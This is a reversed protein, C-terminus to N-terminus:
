CPRRRKPSVIFRFKDIVLGAELKAVADLNEIETPIQFQGDLVFLNLTPLLKLPNYLLSLKPQFHCM